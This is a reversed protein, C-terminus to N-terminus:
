LLGQLSRLRFNKWFLVSTVSLAVPCITYLLFDYAFWKIMVLLILAVSLGAAQAVVLVSLNNSRYALFAQFNVHSGVTAAAVICIAELWNAPRGVFLNEYLAFGLSICTAWLFVISLASRRVHSRTLGALHKLLQPFVIGGIAAVGVLTMDSYSMFYMFRRASDEGDFIIRASLQDIRFVLFNLIQQVALLGVKVNFPVTEFGKDEILVLYTFRALASAVYLICFVRTSVTIITMTAVIAGLLFPYRLVNAILPKIIRRKATLEAIKLVAFTDLLSAIFLSAGLEWSSFYFTTGLAFASAISFVYLGFWSPLSYRRESESRRSLLAVISSDFGIKAVTVCLSQVIILWAFATSTEPTISNLRGSTLISISLAASAGVILTAVARLAVVANESPQRL